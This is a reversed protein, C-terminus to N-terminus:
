KKGRAKRKKPHSIGLLGDEGYSGWMEGLALSWKKEAFVKADVRSISSLHTEPDRHFIIVEEPKCFDLLYPSHTAVVIQASPGDKRTALLRLYRVIEELRSPHVSNEPEEIFIVGPPEPHHVMTLICLSYLIGTSVQAAPVRLGSSLSFELGYHVKEVHRSKEYEDPSYKIKPPLSISVIRGKTLKKLCEEISIIRHRDTLALNALLTPLGSGDKGIEFLKKSTSFKSDRAPSEPDFHFRKTGKFEELKLGEENQYHQLISTSPDGGGGITEKGNRTWYWNSGRWELRITEDGSVVMEAELKYRKSSELPSLTVDYSSKRGDDLDCNLAINIKQSIDKGGFISKGGVTWLENKIDEELLNNTNALTSVMSISQMFSSKGSDNPGILVNFPLLDTEISGICKFGEIKVKNIKM